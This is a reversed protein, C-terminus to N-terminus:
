TDNDAYSALTTSVIHKGFPDNQTAPSRSMNAERRVVPDSVSPQEEDNTVPAQSQPPADGDGSSAEDETQWAIGKCQRYIKEVRQKSIQESPLLDKFQEFIKKFIPEVGQNTHHSLFAVNSEFAQKATCDEVCYGLLWAAHFYCNPLEVAFQGKQRATLKKVTHVDGRVHREAGRM